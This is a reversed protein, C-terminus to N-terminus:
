KGQEDPQDARAAVRHRAAALEGTADEGFVAPTLRDGLAAFQDRAARWQHCRCAFHAYHGRILDDAPYRRLYGAYVSTVDAWVGPRLWYAAADDSADALSVHADVLVLPLRAQWNGGVLCERGFALMQEESGHWRPTLYYLKNTCAAYDDPDAAMARGFWRDMEAPGSQDRGLEVTLMETPPDPDAPDVEWAHTLAAAAGDLRAAYDTWGKPTVTDAFGGGRAEWAWKVYVVGKVYLAASANPFRDALEDALPAVLPGVQLHYAEGSQLLNDVADAARDPPIGDLHVVRRVNAVMRGIRREMADTAAEGPKFRFGDAHGRLVRGDIIIRYWPPTRDTASRDARDFWDRVADASAGTDAALLGGCALVVPADCGADTARKLQRQADAIVAAQAAAPVVGRRKELLLFARAAADWRPDTHGDADYDGRAIREAWRQGDLHADLDWRAHAARRRLDPLLRALRVAAEPSLDDRAAQAEVVPLREFSQHALLDAARDRVDPDDSSVQDVLRTVDGAAAADPPAASSLIPPPWGAPVTTPRTPPSTAPGAAVAALVVTSLPGRWPARKPQNAM